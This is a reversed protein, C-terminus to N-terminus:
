QKPIPKNKVKLVLFKQVLNVLVKDNMKTDM